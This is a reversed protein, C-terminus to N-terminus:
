IGILLKNGNKLEKLTKCNSHELGILLSGDYVKGTLDYNICIVEERDHNMGEYHRFRIIRGEQGNVDQFIVEYDAAKLTNVVLGSHEGSTVYLVDKILAPEIGSILGTYPKFVRLGTAFGRLPKWENSNEERWIFCQEEHISYYKVTSATEDGSLGTYNFIRNSDHIENPHILAIAGVTINDASIVTANVPETERRNLNNFQRARRIRLGNSFTHWNKFDLDVACIVRGKVNKISM